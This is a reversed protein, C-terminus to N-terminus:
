VAKVWRNGITFGQQNINFGIVIREQTLEHPDVSHWLWGPWALLEGEEPTIAISKSAMPTQGVSIEMPNHFRIPASGKPYKYYYTCVMDTSGHVHPFLHSPVDTTSKVVRNVWSRELTLISEEFGLGSWLQEKIGMVWGKVPALSKLTVDHYNKIALSSEYNGIVDQIIPLTDNETFLDNIDKDADIESAHPFKVRLINIPFLPQKIIDTM